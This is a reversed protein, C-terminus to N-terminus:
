RLCAPSFATPTCRINGIINSSVGSADGRLTGANFIGGTNGGVNSFIASNAGLFLDGGNFIGGVFGGASATISSSANLSVYSRRGENYIGGAYGGVANRISSSGNLILSATNANQIGGTFGGTLDSLNTSNFTASGGADNFLFGVSGGAFDFVSSGAGLTLEGSNYFGSFGAAISALRSQNTFLISGENAIVSLLAANSVLSSSGQFTVDGTNLMVIPAKVSSSVIVSSDSVTIANGDSVIAEFNTAQTFGNSRISSAQELTLSGNNLVAGFRNNRIASSGNLIVTGANVLALSLSNIIDVNSLTLIGSPNEITGAISHLPADLNGDSGAISLNALTVAPASATLVTPLNDGQITLLARGPGQLRISRDLTLPRNLTLTGRVAFQIVDGTGATEVAERLSTEGDLPGSVDRLTTVTLTRRSTSTPVWSRRSGELQVPRTWQAMESKLNDIKQQILVQAATRDLDDQLPVLQEQALRLQVQAPDQSELHPALATTTPTSSCAAVVASGIGTLIYRWVLLTRTIKSM